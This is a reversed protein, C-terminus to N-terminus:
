AFMKLQFNDNHMMHKISISYCSRSPRETGRFIEEFDLFEMTKSMYIGLQTM